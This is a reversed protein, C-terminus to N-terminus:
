GLSATKVRKEEVMRHCMKLLLICQYNLSLPNKKDTLIPFAKLEDVAETTPKIEHVKSPSFLRAAKFASVM